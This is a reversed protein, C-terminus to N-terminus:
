NTYFRVYDVLLSAPFTTSANPNKPWDGGVALNVLLFASDGSDFPWVAGSLRSLSAPNTYTVYPSAPDDIYYAVSGPKWIMGYTHWGAATQGAPFHYLTGLGVDGTFGTGHVSGENWDPTLAANVREMIDMEGCAPWDVTAINNGLTWFAPWYGQGEPVWIKAELRGYQLSFLGQTKMRASTFVGPAPQRAVVHLYGDTGVYANPNAPDCPAATSGWACYNELEHNGFGSNGTDYTWVAPDPQQNSGTANTFEDSWVLTGSAIDPAFVKTAVASPKDGTLTAYANLTLNSAVLFPAEYVTSSPTPAGGDVTYHITAGPTTSALSVIQAGAQAAKTTIAPTAVQAQAPTVPGTSNSGDLGGSGSGGAWILATLFLSLGGM